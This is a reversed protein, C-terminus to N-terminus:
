PLDLDPYYKKICEPCMGHSFKADTHQQIYVEVQNWYGKDDRIKKCGSCIPLRGGLTKVEALTKQLEGILREREAEAQKRETIDRLIGTYFDGRATKWAPLALELPFTSGDKRM